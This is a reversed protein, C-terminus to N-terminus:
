SCPFLRARKKSCAACHLAVSVVFEGLACWEECIEDSGDNTLFQVEDNNDDVGNRKIKV